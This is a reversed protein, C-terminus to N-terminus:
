KASVTRFVAVCGFEVVITARNCDDLKCRVKSGWLVTKKRASVGAGTHGTSGLEHCASSTANKHRALGKM